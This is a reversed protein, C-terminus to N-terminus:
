SRPDAIRVAGLEVYNGDAVTLRALPDAADYLGAILAYEGAPLDLPVLLAHRDIVSEGPTWDTTPSTGGGPQSDRQAAM